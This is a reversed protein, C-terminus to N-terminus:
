PGFMNKLNSLIIIVPCGIFWIVIMGGGFGNVGEVLVIVVTLLTFIGLLKWPIVATRNLNNAMSVNYYSDQGNTIKSAPCDDAQQTAAPPIDTQSKCTITDFTADGAPRVAAIFGGAVIIGALAIIAFRQRKVSTQM